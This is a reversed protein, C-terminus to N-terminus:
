VERISLLVDVASLLHLSSICVYKPNIGQYSGSEEVMKYGQLFCWLVPIETGSGRIVLAVNALAATFASFPQSQLHSPSWWVM